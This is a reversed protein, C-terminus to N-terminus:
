RSSCVLLSPEYMRLRIRSTIESTTSTPSLCRHSPDAHAELSFHAYRRSREFDVHSDVDRRALHDRQEPGVAGALRCQQSSERPQHRQLRAPDREVTFHELVSPRTAVYRGLLTRNTKDELVIQQERVQAHE